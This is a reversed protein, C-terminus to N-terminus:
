EVTVTRSETTLIIGNVVVDVKLTYTKGSEVAAYGTISASGYGSGVWADVWIGEQWLNASVVVRDDQEESHHSAKCTATNGSVTIAARTNTLYPTQAYVSQLVASCLVVVIVAMLIVRRM